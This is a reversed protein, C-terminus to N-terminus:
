NHVYMFNFSKFYNMVVIIYCYCMMDFFTLINIFNVYM